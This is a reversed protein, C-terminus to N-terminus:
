RLADLAEIEELVHGVYKQNAALYSIKTAM